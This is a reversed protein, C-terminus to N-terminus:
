SSQNVKASVLYDINEYSGVVYLKNNRTVRSMGPPITSFNSMTEAVLLLNTLMEVFGQTSASMRSFDTSTSSVDLYDPFLQQLQFKSGVNDPNGISVLQLCKYPHAIVTANANIHNTPYTSAEANILTLANAIDVVPSYIGAQLTMNPIAYQAWLPLIYFESVSFIDPFITDWQSETQTSNALIYTQVADKVNDLTNGAAGYIITTWNTPYPSNPNNPDIYNFSDTRIITEPNTGKAAQIRAVYAPMTEAQLMQQVLAGTKFFNSLPQDTPPVVTISFSDYQAQFSTDAFWVKIENVPALPSAQATANWALWEPVYYQGNNVINGCTFNVANGAFQNLLASLLQSATVIAQGQLTQQYTYAAVQLIQQFIATPVTEPGNVDDASLFSIFTLNPISNMTYTGQLESYTMSQASIEGIASVPGPTNNTFLANVLFGKVTYM